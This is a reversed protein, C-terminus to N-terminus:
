QQAVLLDQTQVADAQRQKHKAQEDNRRDNSPLGHLLARLKGEVRVYLEPEGCCSETQEQVSAHM